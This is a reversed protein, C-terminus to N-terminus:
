RRDDVSGSLEQTFERAIAFFAEATEERFSGWRTSAYTQGVNAALSQLKGAARAGPGTPFGKLAGVTLYAYRPDFSAIVRPGHEGHLRLRPGYNRRQLEGAWGLRMTLVHGCRM